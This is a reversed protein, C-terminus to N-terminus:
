AAKKGQKRRIVETDYRFGKGKYPEPKKLARVGATWQGVLEKDIGTVTVINKEATVTLGEPIDVNVPHSFGLALKLVKGAVESKFGVGELILKKTFSTNVGAVMNKIHAAYTGWLARETKDSENKPTLTVEAGNINIAVTGPFDRVLTGKPGKVSMSSGTLKVETGAPINIIQKGIRSM